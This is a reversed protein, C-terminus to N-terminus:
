DSMKKRYRNNWIYDLLIENESNSIFGGLYLENVVEKKNDGFENIKELLDINENLLLSKKLKEFEFDLNRMNNNLEDLQIGCEIMKDSLEDYQKLYKENGIGFIRGVYNLDKRYKEKRILLKRRLEKIAISEM